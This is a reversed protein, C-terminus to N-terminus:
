KHYFTIPENCWNSDFQTNYAWTLKLTKVGVCCSSSIPHCGLPILPVLIQTILTFNLSNKIM